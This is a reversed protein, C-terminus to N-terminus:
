AQKVHLNGTAILAGECDIVRLRYKGPPLVLSTEGYIITQDVPVADNQDSKMQVQILCGHFEDFFSPMKVTVYPKKLRWSPRGNEFKTPPHYVQADIAGYNMPDVFPKRDFLIAPETLSLKRKAHLYYPHIKGDDNLDCMSEQDITFVDRGSLSRLQKGMPIYSGRGFELIHSYGAHVIVKGISDINLTKHLINIAQDLDRATGEKEASETEYSVLKYGIALADRVMNGFVPDQIYYGSKLIPYGREELMNDKYGLAELALYRYGRDWLPRLLDATFSRNQSNYHSENILLFHHKRSERVIYDVASIKRKDAFLLDLNDERELLDILIQVQERDENTLSSDTVSQKMNELVESRNVDKGFSIQSSRPVADKTAYELARKYDGYINSLVANAEFDTSKDNKCYDSFHRDFGPVNVRKVTSFHFTPNSLCSTLSFIMNLGFLMTLTMRANLLSLFRIAIIRSSFEVTPVYIDTSVIRVFKSTM